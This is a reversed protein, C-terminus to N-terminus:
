SLMCKSDVLCHLRMQLTSVDLPHGAGCAGREGAVLQGSRERIAQRHRHGLHGSWERVGPGVGSMRVWTGAMTAIQQWRVKGGWRSETDTPLLTRNYCAHGSLQARTTKPSNLLNNSGYQPPIKGLRDTNRWKMKLIGNPRPNYNCQLFSVCCIFLFFRHFPFPDITAM